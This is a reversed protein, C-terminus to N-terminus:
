RLRPDVVGGLDRPLMATSGVWHSAGSATSEYWAAWQADTGNAGIPPDYYPDAVIEALPPASAFLTQSRRSITVAVDRDFADTLFRPTIIPHQFPDSSAIHIHGRSLPMLPWFIASLVTPYSEGIFEAVPVIYFMYTPKLRECSIYLLKRRIRYYECNHDVILSITTNLIARAGQLTGAAGAAVLSQARSELIDPSTLQAYISGYETTTTIKFLILL